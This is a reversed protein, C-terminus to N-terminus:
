PLFITYPLPQMTKGGYILQVPLFEGLLTGFLVATIQRKTFYCKTISRRKTYNMRRLLSVAWAKSLTAPGGFEALRSRDQILSTERAGARVVATSVAGGVKRTNAIYRQAMLELKDGLLLKRGRKKLYLESVTPDDEEELEAQARKEKM